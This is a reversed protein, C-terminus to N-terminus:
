SWRDEGRRDARRAIADDIADLDALTARAEFAQWKERRDAGVARGMWRLLDRLLEGADRGEALAIALRCRTQVIMYGVTPTKTQEQGPRYERWLRSQWAKPVM